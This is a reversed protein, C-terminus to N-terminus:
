QLAVRRYYSSTEFIETIDDKRVWSGNEKRYVESYNEWGSQGKVYLQQKAVAKAYLYVDNSELMFSYVQNRTIRNKCKADSYIGSWSYDPDCTFTLTETKGVVSQIPSTAGVLTCDYCTVYVKVEKGLDVFLYVDQSPMTFTYTLSNSLSNSLKHGEADAEYIGAFKYLDDTVQVTLTVQDGVFAVNKSLTYSFKDSEEAESFIFVRNPIEGKPYLTTHTTPTYNFSSSTSLPSGLFEANDYWGLFRCDPELVATFLCSDGETVYQLNDSSPSASAIGYGQVITKCEFVNEYELDLNIASIGVTATNYKGGSVFSGASTVRIQLNADEITDYVQNSGSLGSIKFTQTTFNSSDSSYRVAPVGAVFSSGSISAAVEISATQSNNNESVLRSYIEGGTIGKIRVKGVPTDVTKPNCRFTSVMTSNAARLRHTIAETDYQGRTDSVTSYTSGTHQTSINASPYIVVNRVM